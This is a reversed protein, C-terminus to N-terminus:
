AGAGTLTGPSGDAGTSAEEDLTWLMLRAAELATPVAAEVQPSLGINFTIDAVQIGVLAVPGHIWGMLRALALMEGVGGTPGGPARGGAATIEDGRLVRVTGAPQGLDMGDILLVARAGEFSRLLGVDLTGGDVVQTRAPVRSPEQGALRELDEAVRVGVGDDRLLVNGVGVVVLPRKSRSV